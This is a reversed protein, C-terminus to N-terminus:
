TRDDYKKGALIKRQTLGTNVSVVQARHVPAVADQLPLELVEGEGDGVTLDPDVPLDVSTDDHGSVGTLYLPHEVCLYLNKMM